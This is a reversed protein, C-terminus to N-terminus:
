KYDTGIPGKIIVNVKYTLGDCQTVSWDVKVRKASKNLSVSASGEGPDVTNHITAHDLAWGNKFNATIDYTDHDSDSGIGCSSYHFGSLAGDTKTHSFCDHPCNSRTNSAVCNNCSAECSCDNYKVDSRPLLQVGRRATFSVPGSRNSETGAATKVYFEAPQDVVGYTAYPIKAGIGGNDWVDVTLKLDKKDTKLYLHLEGKTKGFNQGTVIVDGGPEIVSFPIIGRLYPPLAVLKRDEKVGARARGCNELIVCLLDKPRAVGAKVGGYAGVTLSKQAGSAPDCQQVPAATVTYAGADAYVHTISNDDTSSNDFDLNDLVVPSSIDGFNISVKKCKGSGLVTIVVSQGETGPDPSFSVDQITGDQAHAGAPALLVLLAACLAPMPRSRRM